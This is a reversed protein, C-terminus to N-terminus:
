RSCCPWMPAPYRSSPNTLRTNTGWLIIQDAHEAQLPDTGLGNGYVSAMGVGSAMGCVSGVQKSAGLLAFLANSTGANQILGQTGASWWPLIAQGGHTDRVQTFEDVVLSLASYPHAPNGKVSTLVGDVATAIWGCSDPCDHHCTGLVEITTM